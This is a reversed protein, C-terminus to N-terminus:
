RVEVESAITLISCSWDCHLPIEGSFISIKIDGLESPTLVLKAAGYRNCIEHEKM